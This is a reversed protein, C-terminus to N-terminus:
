GYRRHVEALSDRVLGELVGADVDALRRVSLCAKGMKHRGLKALLARQDPGSAVLYISIDGKRSSFGTRCSQGQRGSPYTYHYTGFGVIGTGWMVPPEGTVKRMLKVLFRCEARREEDVIAKLYAEVSAQTPKTKNEAM